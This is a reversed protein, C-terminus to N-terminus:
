EFWKKPLLHVFLGVVIIVGTWILLKSELNFYIREFESDQFLGFQPGEVFKLHYPSSNNIEFYDVSDSVIVGVVEHGPFGHEGDTYRWYYCNMRDDQIGQAALSDPPYIDWTGYEECRLFVDQEQTHSIITLNVDSGLSYETSNTYVTVYCFHEEICSPGEILLSDTIYPEMEFDVHSVDGIDNWTKYGHDAAKIAMFSFLLTMSTIVVKKVGWESTKILLKKWEM